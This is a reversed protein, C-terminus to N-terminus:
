QDSRHAGIAHMHNLPGFGSGIDFSSEIGRFVFSKAACVSDRLSMGRALFATIAAALTCGTGHTNKTHVRPKSFAEFNHGNYLTDVAMNKNMSEHTSDTDTEEDIFHGGKLLVNKCGLEILKRCVRRLDSSSRIPMKTLRQAESLNPTVVTALPFLHTIMAEAAEHKVLSDGSTAVLVPDVVLIPISYSRIARATSAIIEASPLMGTKVASISIDSLVSEMQLEVFPLPPVHIGQVGLTNQATLATVVSAGYVNLATFTKLDAQIGAGGGSDSGAITLVCPIQSRSQM